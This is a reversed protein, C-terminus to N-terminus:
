YISIKTVNSAKFGGLYSYPTIIIDLRWEEQDLGEVGM